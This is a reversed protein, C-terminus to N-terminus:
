KMVGRSDRKLVSPASTYFETLEGTKAFRYTKKPREGDLGRAAKRGYRWVEIPGYRSEPDNEYDVEEPPGYVIHIEGRDTRRGLTVGETFLKDAETARREFVAEPQQDPWPNEADRRKAWFSEIFAAATEDDVLSLFERIEKSSAIRAVPGVLWQAYDAGLAFNTLEERAPRKDARAGTGM